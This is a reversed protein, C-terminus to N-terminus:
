VPHKLRPPHPPLRFKLKSMYRSVVKILTYYNRRKEEIRPPLSDVAWFVLVTLYKMFIQM